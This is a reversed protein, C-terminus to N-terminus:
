RSNLALLLAVTGGGATVTRVHNWAMWPGIFQSWTAVAGAADPGVRMLQDNHPVHYAVTILLSVVYLACGVLVWVTGPDGRHRLGSVTLLACVLGTGFLVLLFLPTPAARNIGNIAAISQSAPLARLGAVIFTSFAFYVGAALGAGIAATLTLFREHDGTM